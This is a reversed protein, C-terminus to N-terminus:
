RIALAGRRVRPVARRHNAAITRLSDAALTAAKLYATQWPLLLKSRQGKLRLLLGCPCEAICIARGDVVEATEHWVPNPRVTTM